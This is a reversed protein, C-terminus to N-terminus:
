GSSAPVSSGELNSCHSSRFSPLSFTSFSTMAKETTTATAKETPSNM